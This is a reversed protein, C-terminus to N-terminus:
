AARLLREAHRRAAEDGSDGGLMRCLEEVLKSDVLREIDARALDRETSKSVRFHRAARSAVQPLHTICVVQRQGALRHLRAGVAQATLGGVGADVEDFVVTPSSEAVAVSMLALMVRSLEGGSAIEKLPGSPVGPNPAILFEVADAGRPGLRRLRDDESVGASTPERDGVAVEFSSDEMALQALESLVARQLAIAAKRRRASLRNSLDDLDAAADDLERELGATAEEFNLLRERELRCREAHALIAEISGGHKRKLRTLQDLRDEVEVLRGPDAELDSGYDRLERSLDQAEYALGACREALADLRPDAGPVAGLEKAAAALLSEAGGEGEEGFLASSAGASAIRLADLSSLRSREIQLEADEEESPSVEEIEGIEFELLDLDREREGLRARLEELRRELDRAEAWRRRCRAVVDLHERGCFADLVELQTSTVTLKRHEHQGYFAVLREGVSRLDAASVSRGQLYARTRGDSAVRRALVLEDGDLPVREALQSLDPDAALDADTTFVGEVYAEPAGPRVISRRPKGGLLLDLAHAVMTKGAGTEGTIVNLGPDLALEAREILLLNEIRLEALVYPGLM